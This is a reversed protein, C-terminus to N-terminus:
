FASRSPGSPPRGRYPRYRHARTEGRSRRRRRGCPCTDGTDAAARYLREAGEQDGAEERMEALRM